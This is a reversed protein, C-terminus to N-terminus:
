RENAWKGASLHKGPTASSSGCASTWNVLYFLPNFHSKILCKSFEDHNDQRTWFPQVHTLWFHDASRFSNRIYRCLNYKSFTFSVWNEHTIIIMTKDLYCCVLVGDLGTKRSYRDIQRDTQSWILHLLYPLTAVKAPAFNLYDMLRQYGAFM